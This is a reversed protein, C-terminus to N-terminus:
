ASVVEDPDRDREQVVEREQLGKWDQAFLLDRCRNCYSRIAVVPTEVLEGREEVLSSLEFSLGPEGCNQCCPAAFSTVLYM